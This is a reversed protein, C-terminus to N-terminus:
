AEVTRVPVAVVASGRATLSAPSPLLPFRAAFWLYSAAFLGLFGLGIGIEPIGM